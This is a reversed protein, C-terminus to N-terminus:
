QRNPSNASRYSRMDLAFVELLPGYPLSRYVREAEDPEFRIPYHEFFARKARAALLAVSRERYRDDALVQTPYWNDHVEHDDWLVVQAVEATLRRVNEDLFNYLHNGRLDQLTGAVKEKAGCHVFFDPAARRMSEYALLGGEDPNIGWGQGVTDATWALSVDRRGLPPTLFRGLVPL